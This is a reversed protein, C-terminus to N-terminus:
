VSTVTTRTSDFRALNTNAIAINNSLTPAPATGAKILIGVVGPIANIASYFRSLVVNQGIDFSSGYALIADEVLADGNVPYVGGIELPDTNKTITVDLYILVEVTRSFYLNHVFGQSDTVTGAETGFTAIGAPKTAWLADWITQDDGGHIFSEFSHPPRGGGDIVDSDNEIILVSTIGDLGRLTTLIGEVTSTGTNQLSDLRRLRLESDTERARGVVADLINTVSDMGFLPTEIVILSSANAVIPGSTEARCMLDVHPLYGKQTESVVITIPGSGSDLTNATTVAPQEKQGDASAFEISIGAAYSGTVVVGSLNNLNNLATQITANSANHALTATTQGSFTITWNGSAPVASFTLKQSENIGAHVDGSEITEFRSLPVGTVSFVVGQPITTLLTGFVRATVESFTAPLRTIGTLAVVNDLSTGTATDPFASNYIEELLEWILAERESFIGIVQGFISTGLLNIEVGFSARFESELEAQIEAQSKRIFGVDTLGFTM